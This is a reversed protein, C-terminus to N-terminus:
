YVFCIYLLFEGFHFRKEPADTCPTTVKVYPNIGQSEALEKHHGNVACWKQFSSESIRRYYVSLGGWNTQTIARYINKDPKQACASRDLSVADVYIYFMDLFYGSGRKYGATLCGQRKLNLM